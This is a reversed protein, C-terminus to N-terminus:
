LRGKKSGACTSRDVHAFASLSYLDAHGLVYRARSARAGETLADMNCLEPGLRMAPHDSFHALLVNRRLCIAGRSPTLVGKILLCASM